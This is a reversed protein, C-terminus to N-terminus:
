GGVSCVKKLQCRKCINFPTKQKILAGWQSSTLCSGISLGLEKLLIADWKRVAEENGRPSTCRGNVCLPCVECWEDVGEIVMVRSESQSLLTNKIRKEAEHFEPPREEATTGLFRICCIHHARLRLVEMDRDGAFNLLETM